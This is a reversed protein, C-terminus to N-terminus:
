NLLDQTTYECPFYPPCSATAVKLLNKDSNNWNDLWDIPKKDMTFIVPLGGRGGEGKGKGEEKEGEGTIGM